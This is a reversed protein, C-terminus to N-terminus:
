GQRLSFDSGNESLEFIFSGGNVTFVKLELDGTQKYHKVQSEFKPFTKLFAAYLEKKTM